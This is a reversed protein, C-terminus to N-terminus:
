ILDQYKLLIEQIKEQGLIEAYEKAVTENVKFHRMLIKLDTNKILQEKKPYNIFSVKDLTSNRIFNYQAEIPINPYCNLANAVYITNPDNSVYRILFFSNVKRIEDQTPVFTKNVSSKMIDYPTRNM